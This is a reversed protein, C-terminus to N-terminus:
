RRKRPKKIVADIEIAAERLDQERFDGPAVPRHRDARFYACAEILRDREEVEVVVAKRLAPKRRATRTVNM